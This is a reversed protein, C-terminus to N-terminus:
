LAAIDHFPLRVPPWSSSWLLLEQEPEVEKKILIIIVLPPGIEKARKGDELDQAVYSTTTVLPRKEFDDM